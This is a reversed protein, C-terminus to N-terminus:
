RIGATRVVNSGSPTSANGDKLDKLKKLVWCLRVGSSTRYFSRAEKRVVILRLSNVLLAIKPEAQTHRRAKRPRETYM